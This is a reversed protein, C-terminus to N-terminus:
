STSCYLLVNASYFFFAVVVVVFVTVAVYALVVSCICVRVIVIRLRTCRRIDILFLRNCGCDTSSMTDNLFSEELHDM